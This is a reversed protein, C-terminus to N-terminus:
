PVTWLALDAAYTRAFVESAAPTWETEAPASANLHPADVGFLESAAVFDWRLLRNFILQGEHRCNSDQSSVHDNPAKDACAALVFAEFTECPYPPTEWRRLFRFGSEMRAHPERIFAVRNPIQKFTEADVQQWRWGRLVAMRWLTSNGAKHSVVLGLSPTTLILL